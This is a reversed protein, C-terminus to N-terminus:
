CRSSMKGRLKPGDAERGIGYFNAQDWRPYPRHGEQDFSLRPLYSFIYEAAYGRVLRADEMQLTWSRHPDAFAACSATDICVPKQEPARGGGQREIRCCLVPSLSARPGAVLLCEEIGPYMGIALV